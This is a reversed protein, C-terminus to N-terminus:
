GCRRLTESPLEGFAQRYLGAFRGFQYFGWRCAINTVTEGPEADQLEARVRNLRVTRLYAMPSVGRFRRFGDFLARASVGSVTVLDELSIPRAANDIIYREVKRVHSPAIRCDQPTLKDHHTSPQTELLKLILFSELHELSPATERAQASALEEMLMLAHNWWSGQGDALTMEPSFRIQGQTPRGTMLTLYRDIVAERIQIVLQSCDGSWRMHSLEATSVISARHRSSDIVRGGLGIAAAGRLPLMLLLYGQDQVRSISVESGYSVAGVALHSLQRHNLWAHLQADARTLSLEHPCYTRSIYHRTQDLESSSFVRHNVM